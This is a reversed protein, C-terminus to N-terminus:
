VIVLRLQTFFYHNCDLSKFLRSEGRFAFFIERSYHFLHGPEPM